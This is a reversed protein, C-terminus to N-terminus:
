RALDFSCTLMAGEDGGPGSFDKEWGRVVVRRAESAALVPVGLEGEENGRLFRLMDVEGSGELTDEGDDMDIYLDALLELVVLWLLPVIGGGEKMGEWWGLENLLRIGDGDEYWVELGNGFVAVVVVVVVVVVILV